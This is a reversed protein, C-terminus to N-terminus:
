MQPAPSRARKKRIHRVVAIIIAGFMGAVMLVAGVVATIAIGAAISTGVALASGGAVAPAQPAELRFTGPSAVQLALVALGERSGFTYTVNANYTKLSEVAAAASVPTVNVNFEPINGGAAGEAEYYIVYDGSNNLTFEGSGPLTVRQFSNVQTGTTALGVVVTVAGAILVALAALYWVRGPRLKASPTTATDRGSPRSDQNTM